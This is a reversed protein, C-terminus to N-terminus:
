RLVRIEATRNMERLGKRRFLLLDDQHFIEEYAELPKGISRYLPIEFLIYSPNEALKAELQDIGRVRGGWYFPYNSDHFYEVPDDNIGTFPVFQLFHPSIASATVHLIHTDLTIRGRHIEESLAACLAFGAPGMIWRPDPSNRWGGHAAVDFDFAWLEVISHQTANTYTLPQGPAESYLLNKTILWPYILIALLAFLALKSSYREYLFAFAAAAPLTLFYPCWYESLQHGFHWLRLIESKNPTHVGLFIQTLCGVPLPLLLAIGALGAYPMAWRSKGRSGVLLFALGALGLITLGPLILYLGTYFSFYFSFPGSVLKILRPSDPLHALFLLLGMLVALLTMLGLTLDLRGTLRTNTYPATRLKKVAMLILGLGALQALPLIPYPVPKALGIPLEPAGFLVGGILCAGGVAANALEGSVLWFAVGAAAVMIAFVGGLANTAISTGLLVAGFAVRVRDRRQDLFFALGLGVLAFDMVTGRMALARGFLPTLFLLLAAMGGVIDNFLTRGLRYLGFIVLGAMPVMLATEVLVALRSHSGLALLLYFLELGPEQTWPGWLGYPDNNFPAYIHFTLIRQVSSPWCLADGYPIVPSALQLPLRSIALLGWALLALKQGASPPRVAIAPPHRLLWLTSAALPAWVAVGSLLGLPGLLNGLWFAFAWVGSAGALIADCLGLTPDVTLLLGGIVAAGWGWFGCVKLASWGTQPLLPRAGNLAERWALTFGFCNLRHVALWAVSAIGALMAATSIQTSALTNLRLCVRGTRLNDETM